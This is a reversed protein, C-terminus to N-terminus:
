FLKLLKQIETISNQFSLMAAKELAKIGVWRGRKFEGEESHRM